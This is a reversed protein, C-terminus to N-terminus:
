GAAWLEVPSGASQRQGSHAGSGARLVVLLQQPEGCRGEALEAGAIGVAPLGVEGAAQLPVHSPDLSPHALSGTSPHTFVDGYHPNLPHSSTGARQSHASVVRHARHLPGFDSEEKGATNLQLPPEEQLCHECPAIPLFGLLLSHDM